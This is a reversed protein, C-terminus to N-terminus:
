CAYVLRRQGKGSKKQRTCCSPAGRLRPQPRSRGPSLSKSSPASRGLDCPHPSSRCSGAASPQQLPYAHGQETVEAFWTRFPMVVATTKSHYCNITAIMM